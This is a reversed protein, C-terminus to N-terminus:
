LLTDDTYFPSKSKAMVSKVTDVARRGAAVQEETGDKVLLPRSLNARFNRYLHVMYVPLHDAAPGGAFRHVSRRHDTAGAFRHDTPGAFRHDTAGAFRQVSRSHQGVRDVGAVKHGGQVLLVLLLSAHLLVRALAGLPPPPPPPPPPHM